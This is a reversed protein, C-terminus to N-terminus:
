VNLIRRANAALVQRRADDTLGAHQLTSLAGAIPHSPAGTGFLLRTPGVTEVVCRFAGPGLLCSTEVHWLEQRRMAAIAEALLDVTVGALIVPAAYDSLASLLATITGPTEVDVMIPMKTASLSQTLARFPAFDAPWGQAAPFFRALCFGEAKLRTLPATDGYYMTPNLTAIPLLESHEACAARTAANGVTPDLLLGLTSLTGARAVNHKQMLALLADVPM